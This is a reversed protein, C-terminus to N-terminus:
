HMSGGGVKLNTVGGKSICVYIIFGGNGFVLHKFIEHGFLYKWAYGNGFCIKSVTTQLVVTVLVKVTMRLVSSVVVVTTMCYFRGPTNDGGKSISYELPFKTDLRFRGRTSFTQM